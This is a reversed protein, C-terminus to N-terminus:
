FRWATRTGLTFIHFYKRGTTRPSQATYSTFLSFALHRRVRYNISAGVSTGWGHRTKVQKKHDNQPRFYTLRVGTQGGLSWHPSLPLAFYPGAQTSYFALTHHTVKDKNVVYQLNSIHTSAGVGINKHFFWAGELGMTTGTSTRFVTKESPDYWSLPVTFGVQMALFSPKDDKSLQEQEETNLKKGKGHTIADAIWYGMETSIIGIGAGVLVDSLWHKNNTVRMLGTATAVSYAGVGVLPSIHGYEKNLMTATMFATATHGSPFSHKDSGDPRTIHTTHKLSQVTSTMLAISFADALLMRKWTSASPIGSAKMGIMVAAPLYQTYNDVQRRFQPLFDNRLQRFKKDEQKEILGGVILPVGLHTMQFLKSNSLHELPFESALTDTPTSQSKSAVFWLLFLPTLLIKQPSVM